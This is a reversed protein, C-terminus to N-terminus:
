ILPRLYITAEREEEITENLAASNLYQPQWTNISTLFSLIFLNNFLLLLLSVLNPAPDPHISAPLFFDVEKTRQLQLWGATSTYLPLNLCLTNIGWGQCQALCIMAIKGRGGGAADVAGEHSSNKLQLLNWCSSNLRHNNTKHKWTIFLSKRTLKTGTRFRHKEQIRKSTKSAPYRSEDQVRTAVTRDSHTHKPPTPTAKRRHELDRLLTKVTENLPILLRPVPTMAISWLREWSEMWKRYRCMPRQPDSLLWGAM